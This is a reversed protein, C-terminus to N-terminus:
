VDENNKELLVQLNNIQTEFATVFTPIKQSFNQWSIKYNHASEGDWVGIGTDVMEEIMTNFNDFNTAVKDTLNKIEIVKKNINETDIINLAKEM